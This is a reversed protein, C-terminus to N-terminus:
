LLLTIGLVANLSLSAAQPQALIDVPVNFRISYYGYDICFVFFNLVYTIVTALATMITVATTLLGLFLTTNTKALKKIKRWATILSAVASDHNGAVKNDGTPSLSARVRVHKITISNVIHQRTPKM